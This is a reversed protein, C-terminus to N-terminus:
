RSNSGLYNQTSIKCVFRLRYAEFLASERRERVKRNCCEGCAAARGEADEEDHLQRKESLRLM